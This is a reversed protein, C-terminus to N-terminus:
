GCRRWAAAGGLATLMFLAAGPLPMSVTGAALVNSLEFGFDNFSMDGGGRLDEFSVLATQGGLGMARANAFGGPNLAGSGTYLDFSTGAPTTVALRFTVGEGASFRGLAATDGVSATQGDFVLLDDQGPRVLFLQKTHVGHRGTFTIAVDGDAAVTLGHGAGAADAVPAPAVAAHATGLGPAATALAATALTAAAAALVTLRLRSM